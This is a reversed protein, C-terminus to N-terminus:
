KYIKNYKKALEKQIKDPYDPTGYRLIGKISNQVVPTLFPESITTKRKYGDWAFYKLPGDRHDRQKRKMSSPMSIKQSTIEKPFAMYDKLVGSENIPIFPIYFPDGGLKNINNAFSGIQDIKLKDKKKTLLGLKKIYAKNLDIRYLPILNIWGLTKNWFRVLDCDPTIIIYAKRIETDANQYVIDGRRVFDDQPTYYLRYSWLKEMFRVKETKNQNTKSARFSLPRENLINKFREAIFEGLGSIEKISFNKKGLEQQIGSDSVFLSKMKNSLLEYLDSQNFEQDTSKLMEVLEPLKTKGFEVLLDDIAELAKNRIERSFRFSFNDERLKNARKLLYRLNSPSKTYRIIRKSYSKFKSKLITKISEEHTSGSFIIVPCSTKTLIKKLNDETYSGATGFDWDFIIIDARYHEEDVCNWFFDPRLFGSVSWKTESKLLASVLAKLDEEPWTSKGVVHRLNSHNLRKTDKIIGGVSNTPLADDIICINLPPISM